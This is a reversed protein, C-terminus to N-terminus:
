FIPATINEIFRHNRTLLGNFDRVLRFCTRGGNQIFRRHFPNRPLTRSQGRAGRGILFLLMYLM